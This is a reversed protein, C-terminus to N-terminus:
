MQHIFEDSLTVHWGSIHFRFFPFGSSLGVHQPPEDAATIEVDPDLEPPSESTVSPSSSQSHHGGDGVDPYSNM